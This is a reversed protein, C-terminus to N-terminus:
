EAVIEIESEHRSTWGVIGDVPVPVDDPRIWWQGGSGKDTNPEMVTGTHVVPRNPNLSHYRVQTGSQIKSSM